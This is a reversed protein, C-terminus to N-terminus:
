NKQFRPLQLYAKAHMFEILCHNNLLATIETNSPSNLSKWGKAIALRTAIFVHSIITCSSCLWLEMDLGLLVMQPTLPVPDALISLLLKSLMTWLTTLIPCDWWIHLPTGPSGCNKWCLNTSNPYIGSKRKKLAPECLLKLM